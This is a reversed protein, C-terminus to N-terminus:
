VFPLPRFVARKFFRSTVQKAERAVSGQTRKSQDSRVSSSVLCLSGLDLLKKLARSTSIEQSGVSSLDVLEGPSLIFEQEGIRFRLTGGVTSRVKM